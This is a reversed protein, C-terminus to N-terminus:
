AHSAKVLQEVIHAFRQAAVDKSITTQTNTKDM